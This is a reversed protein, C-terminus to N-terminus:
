ETGDDDGVVPIVTLPTGPRAQCDPCTVERHWITTRIGGRDKGKYAPGEKGCAVVVWPKGSKNIAEKLNHIADATPIPQPSIPSVGVARRGKFPM